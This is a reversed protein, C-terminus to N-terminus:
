SRERPMYTTHLLHHAREGGPEGLYEEYLKRIAPNQHSRRHVKNQDINYIARMRARIIEMDSGQPMGGGNICGSPCGMIEIFAYPSEGKRIQEMLVKANALGSAVAVKVEMDGITITADKIGRLGRVDRFDVNAIEKGSIYFAATRLAAEM